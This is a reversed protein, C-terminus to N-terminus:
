EAAAARGPREVVAPERAARAVPAALSSDCLAFMLESLRRGESLTRARQAELWEECLHGAELPDRCRSLRAMFDWGSDSAERLSGLIAKNFTEVQEALRNCGEFFADAQMLDPTPRPSHAMANRRMSSASREPNAKRIDDASLSPRVM